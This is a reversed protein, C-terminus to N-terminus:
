SSRSRTCGGGGGDCGGPSWDDKRPIKSRRRCSCRGGVPSRGSKQSRTSCCCPCDTLCNNVFPRPLSAPFRSVAAAAAAVAVLPRRPRQHSPAPSPGRLHPPVCSNPSKCCRTERSSWPRFRRCSCGSSYTDFSYFPPYTLPVPGTNQRDSKIHLKILM